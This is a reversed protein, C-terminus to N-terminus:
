DPEADGGGLVGGGRGGRACVADDHPGPEHAGGSLRPVRGGRDALEDGPERCRQRLGRETLMQPGMPKIRVAVAPSQMQITIQDSFTLPRSAIMIAMTITRM